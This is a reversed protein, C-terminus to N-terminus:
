SSRRWSGRVCSWGGPGDARRGGGPGGLAARVRQRIREGIVRAVELLHEGDLFLRDAPPAGATGDRRDPPEPNMAAGEGAAVCPGPAVPTGRGEGRGGKGKGFGERGGGAGGISVRCGHNKDKLGSGAGAGWFPSPSAPDPKARGARVDASLAGLRGDKDERARRPSLAGM